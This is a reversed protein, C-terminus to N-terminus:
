ATYIFGFKYSKLIGHKLMQKILGYAIKISSKDVDNSIRKEFVISLYLSLGFGRYYQRHGAWKQKM